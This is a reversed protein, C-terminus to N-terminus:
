DLIWSFDKYIFKPNLTDQKIEFQLKIFRLGKYGLGKNKRLQELKNWQEVDLVLVACLEKGQIYFHLQEENEYETYEKFWYTLESKNVISLQQILELKYEKSVPQYEDFIPNTNKCVPREWDCSILCLTFFVSPLIQRLTKNLKLSKM